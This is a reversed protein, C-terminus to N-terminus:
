VDESVERVGARERDRASLGDRRARPADCESERLDSIAMARAIRPVARLREMLRERAPRRAGPGAGGLAVALVFLVLAITCLARAATGRRAWGRRGLRAVARLLWLWVTM